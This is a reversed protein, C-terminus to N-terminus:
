VHGQKIPVEFVEKEQIRNFIRFVEKSYDLRLELEDEDEVSWIEKKKRGRKPTTKIVIKSESYSKSDRDLRDLSATGKKNEKIKGKEEPLSGVRFRFLMPSSGM